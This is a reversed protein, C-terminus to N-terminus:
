TVEKYSDPQKPKEFFRSLQKEFQKEIIPGVKKEIISGIKEELIKLIQNTLSSELSDIKKELVPIKDELWKIKFPAFARNEAIREDQTEYEPTGKSQDWWAIVKGESDVLKIIGHKAVYDCLLPDNEQFAIHYDQYTEPLGLRCRFQKQFWNAYEQAENYIKTTCGRIHKKDIVKEPLWLVLKSDNIIRFTVTGIEFDKKYDLYTTNNNTWQHGHVVEKPLDVIEYQVCILNLRPDDMIKQHPTSAGSTSNTLKNDIPYIIDTPAYMKPKTKKNVVVGNIDVKNYLEQLYGKNILKKIIKCVYPPTVHVFRAITDQSYGQRAYHYIKYETPLDDV